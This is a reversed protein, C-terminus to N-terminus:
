VVGWSQRVPQLALMDRSGVGFCFPVFICTTDVLHHSSMQRHSGTPISQSTEISLITSSALQMEISSGTQLYISSICMAVLHSNSEGTVHYIESEDTSLQGRPKSMPVSWPINSRWLKPYKHYYSGPVSQQFNDLTAQITTYRQLIDVLQIAMTTTHESFVLFSAPYWKTIRYYPTIM